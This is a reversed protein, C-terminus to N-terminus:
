PVPVPSSPRNDYWNLEMTIDATPIPVSVIPVFKLLYTDLQHLVIEEENREFEGLEVETGAIGKREQFLLTGDSTVTPNEFVQCLSLTSSRRNNNVITLPSAGVITATPNEFFELTGGTTSYLEFLLHMEVITGNPQPPPPIILFYKPPAAPVGITIKHVIFHNGEHIRHHAIDVSPRAVISTPVTM